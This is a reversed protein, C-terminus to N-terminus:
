ATSREAQSPAPERAGQSGGALAQWVAGPSRAAWLDRAIAAYEHAAIKFPNVTHINEVLGYRPRDTEPAFTGFLRDWVILIGGLNRGVYRADAAHHVRHHSPTNLVAELPGLRGILETHIWFQYLLNLGGASVVVFPHFGALVLLPFVMLSTIPSWWAQRLATSLNFHTSSHHGEHAAWLFRVQHHLRHFWYYAFDWLLVAVWFSLANSEWHVPAWEWAATYVPTGVLVYLPTLLVYGTYLSLSGWTDAASYGRVPRRWWRVVVSELVVLGLLILAIQGEYGM